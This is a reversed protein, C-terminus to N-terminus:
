VGAAGASWIRFVIRALLVPGSQVAVKVVLPNLRTSFMVPQANVGNTESMVPTSGFRAGSVLLPPKTCDCANCDDLGAISIPSELLQGWASAVCFARLRPLEQSIPAYSNVQM